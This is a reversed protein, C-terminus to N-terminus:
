WEYGADIASTTDALRGKIRLAPDNRQFTAMLCVVIAPTHTPFAGHESLARRALSGSLDGFLGTMFQISCTTILSDRECVIVAQGNVMAQVRLHVAM